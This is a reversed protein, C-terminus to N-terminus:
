LGTPSAVFTWPVGLASEVLRAAAQVGLTETAYHGASVVVLDREPAEVATHHPGEGVVLTDLGRESAERLTDSSAGAGSCIGWRRTRRGAPLPTHRASGGHRRAFADARAVLEVTDVDAPGSVGIEVNGKWRAFGGDPVLGLEEALLVNNGLTPHLDLPIHSGYVAVDHELLLRLRDYALGVFPQVGSWFMGHHVLLLSAGAAVAGEITARSFDVAAAVRRVGGRNALQLGNVAGPFDPLEASRLADDLLRVVDDLPVPPHDAPRTATM